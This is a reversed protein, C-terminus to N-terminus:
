KSEHLLMKIEQRLFDNRKMSLEIMNDIEKIWQKKPMVNWKKQHLEYEGEIKYQNERIIAAVREKEFVVDIFFMYRELFKNVFTNNKILHNFIFFGDALDPNYVEGYLDGLWIKNINEARFAYDCDYVVWKWKTHDESTKDRWWRTNRSPWDTNAIYSNIIINDIYSNVDIREIFESYNENESLDNNKLFQVVDQMYDDISGDDALPNLESGELLDVADHDVNYHYMFHRPTIMERINHIGWYEKNIYVVCPKYEQYDVKSYDRHITAVSVDKLHTYGFDNGSNRLLLRKYTSVPNHEFMTYELASEGYSGRWYLGLSKMPSKRSGRGKIRIGIKDKFVLENNEYYEIKAPFEWNQNYNAVIPSYIHSIGNNGIIYLGSDPSWLYIEDIKLKIVPLSHNTKITEVEEFCSYLIFLLFIYMFYRATYNNM